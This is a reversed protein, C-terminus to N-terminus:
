KPLRPTVKITTPPACFENNCGQYRVTGDIKFKGLDTIKIKQRFVVTSEWYTVDMKFSKDYKKVPTESPTPSGIFQVGTSKSFDFSMSIPGSPQQDPAFVHWGNTITMTMEIVANNNNVDVIRSRWTAVQPQNMQATASIVSILLLLLSLIKKM